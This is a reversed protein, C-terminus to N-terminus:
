VNSWFIQAFHQWNHGFEHWINAFRTVKTGFKSLMPLSRLLNPRIRRGSSAHEPFCKGLLKPAFEYRRDLSRRQPSYIKLIQQTNQRPRRRGRWSYTRSPALQLLVVHRAEARHPLKQCTNPLRQVVESSALDASPSGQIRGQGSGWFVNTAASRRRLTIPDSCQRRNVDERCINRPAVPQSSPALRKIDVDLLGTSLVALERARAM